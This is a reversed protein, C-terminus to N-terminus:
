QEEKSAQGNQEELIGVRYDDVKREWKGVFKLVTDTQIGREGFHHSSL